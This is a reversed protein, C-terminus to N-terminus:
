GGGGGARRERARRERFRQKAGGRDIGRKDEMRRAAGSGLVLRPPPAPASFQRRAEPSGCNPCEALETPAGELEEFRNGCAPCLFEYIPM